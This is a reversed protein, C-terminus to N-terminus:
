CAPIAGAAALQLVELADRPWMQCCNKWIGASIWFYRQTYIIGNVRINMCKATKSNSTVGNPGNLSSIQVFVFWISETMEFCDRDEFYRCTMPSIYLFFIGAPSLLAVAQQQQLQDAFFLHTSCFHSCNFPTLMFQRRCWCTVRCLFITSLGPTQTQVSDWEPRLQTWVLLNM